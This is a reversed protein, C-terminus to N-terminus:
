MLALCLTLACIATELVILAKTVGKETDIGLRMALHTLGYIKGEHKITGNNQLIGFSEARFKSKAKLMAEIIWPTFCILGLLEINAIIVTCACVTGTVYNLGGPYVKASYWNYLLFAALAGAFGLSLVAGSTSGAHLSLIGLTVHLVLGMGAELGNFGALFNTANTCCLVALPILIFTYLGGLSVTGLLPVSILGSMGNVAILPIAAPIPILFYLWRPIGSRKMKKFFDDGSRKEILSTLVEIMGIITMLLITSLSALLELLDATGILSMICARVYLLLGCAFGFIVIPGGMEAVRQKRHSMLNMGTIGASREFRIMPSAILYSVAFSTLISVILMFINM